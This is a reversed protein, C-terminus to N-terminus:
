QSFPNSMMVLVKAAFEFKDSIFGWFASLKDFTKSTEASKQSVFNIQLRLLSLKNFFLAILVKNSNDTIM